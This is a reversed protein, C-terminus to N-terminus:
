ETPADESAKINSFKAQLEKYKEEDFGKEVRVPTALEKELAATGGKLQEESEAKSAIGIRLRRQDEEARLRDIQRQFSWFTVLPMALVEFYGM